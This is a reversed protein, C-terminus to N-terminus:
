RGPRVYMMVQGGGYPLHVDELWPDRRVRDLFGALEGAHSDVNDAVIIGGPRIRNLAHTLYHDYSEKDADILVFDFRKELEQITEQANGPIIKIRKSLGAKAINETAMRVKEPDAELTTLWGSTMEIADGIWISSYGNSTGIELVQRAVIAQLMFHIFAAADPHLNWMGGQEQGFRYLEDLLARREQDIM